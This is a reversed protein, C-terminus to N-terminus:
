LSRVWNELLTAGADGSKEPHFQTAALPGNEVAAVFPAGHRAWTVHPTVRVFAGSPQLTWHQVAYSHVFYFREHEVGRFLVSGAAAEVESWGMHPVVDAPLREVTGPWEGLGDLPTASPETSGDFLVQMGVCVGLVPRGGSLRRDIIRPGQAAALGAMCAHFNGVGPVFLGDCGLAAEPDASLSVSAGVRELARVASRVNGSGYDLVVVDKTM